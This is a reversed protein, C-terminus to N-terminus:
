RGQPQRPNAPATSPAAGAAQQPPTISPQAFSSDLRQIVTSTVDVSPDSALAQGKDLVVAAKRETRIQEAIPQVHEIIQQRVYSAADNVDEQLDQLSQQAQQARDLAQQLSQQTAAPLPTGPKAARQAADRQSQFTQGATQLATRRQQLVGNYKAQLQSTGSKAAASDSFVRNFDVILVSSDSAALAPAASGALLAAALVPLMKTM